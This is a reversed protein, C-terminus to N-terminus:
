HWCLGLGQGWALAGGRGGALDEPGLLHSGQGALQVAGQQYVVVVRLHHLAWPDQKGGEVAFATALGCGVEVLRQLAAELQEAVMNKSAGAGLRSAGKPQPHQHAVAAVFRHQQADGGAGAPEGLRIGGEQGQRALQLM